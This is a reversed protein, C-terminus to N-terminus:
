RARMGARRGERPPETDFGLARREKDSLQPGLVALERREDADHLCAFQERLALALRQHGAQRALALASPPRLAGGAQSAQAPSGASTLDFPLHVDAGYHVLLGAVGTAGSAAALALARQMAHQTFVVRSLVAAAVAANDHRASVDLVTEGDRSELLAFELGAPTRRPREPSGAAGTEGCGCGSGSGGGVGVGGGRGGGGGGGLPACLLAAAIAGGAAGGAHQAAYHLASWGNRLDPEGCALPDFRAIRQVIEVRADRVALQLPTKGSRNHGCLGAGSELLREVMRLRGYLVAIHLPSDGTDPEKSRAGCLRAGQRLRLCFDEWEDQRIADGLYQELLGLTCGAAAGAGADGQCDSDSGSLSGEEDLAAKEEHVEQQEM